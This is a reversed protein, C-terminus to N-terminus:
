GERKEEETRVVLQFLVGPQFASVKEFHSRKVLLSLHFTAVMLVNDVVAHSFSNAALLVANIDNILDQFQSSTVQTYVAVFSFCSFLAFYFASVTLRHFSLAVLRFRTSSL